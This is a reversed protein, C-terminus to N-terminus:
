ATLYLVDPADRRPLLGIQHQEVAVREFVDPVDPFWDTHHDPLPPQRAGLELAPQGRVLCGAADVRSIAPSM